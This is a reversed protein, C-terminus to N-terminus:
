PLLENSCIPLMFIPNLLELREEPLYNSRFYVVEQRVMQLM